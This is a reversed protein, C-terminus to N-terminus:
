FSCRAALADSSLNRPAPPSDIKKCFPRMKLKCYVQDRTTETFDANRYSGRAPAFGEVNGRDWGVGVSRLHVCHRYCELGGGGWWEWLGDRGWWSDEGDVDEAAEGDGEHDEDVVGAVPGVGVGLEVVGGPVAEGEGVEDEGVEEEEDAGGDDEGHL